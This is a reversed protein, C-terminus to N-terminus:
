ETPYVVMNEFHTKRDINAQSKSSTKSLKHEGKGVLLNKVGRSQFSARSIMLGLQRGYNQTEYVLVVESFFNHALYPQWSLNPLVTVIPSFTDWFIGVM